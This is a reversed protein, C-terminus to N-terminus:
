KRAATLGITKRRDRWGAWERAYLAQKRKYDLSERRQRAWFTAGVAAASVAVGTVGGHWPLDVVASQVHDLLNTHATLDAGSLCGVATGYIRVARERKRKRYESREM